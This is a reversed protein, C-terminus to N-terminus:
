NPKLSIKLIKTQYVDQLDLLKIIKKIFISWIADM